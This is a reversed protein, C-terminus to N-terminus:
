TALTPEYAARSEAGCARFPLLVRDMNSMGVLSYGRPPTASAGDVHFTHSNPDDAVKISPVFNM